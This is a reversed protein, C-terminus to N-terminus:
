TKVLKRNKTQPISKKCGGGGNKYENPFYIGIFIEGLVMYETPKCFAM